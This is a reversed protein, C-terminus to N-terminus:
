TKNSPKQDVSDKAAQIIEAHLFAKATRILVLLFKFRGAVTCYINRMNRAILVIQNTGCSKSSNPHCVSSSFSLILIANNAENLFITFQSRMMEGM